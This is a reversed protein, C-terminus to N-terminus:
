LIIFNQEHDTEQFLCCDFRLQQDDVVVSLMYTPSSDSRLLVFDDLHSNDITVDGQVLDRVTMQGALESKLRIVNNDGKTPKNSKHRCTGDYKYSEGAKIANEKKIALEDASCHCYYAAGDAVLREAIEKHRAIRSSQIVPPEDWDINLWKLIEFILKINEDSSRQKDTDEIRLLFKGGSHRAFLWNFLATRVSGIHLVGTPSPAFRVRVSM